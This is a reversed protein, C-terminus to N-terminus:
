NDLIKDIYKKLFGNFWLTIGLETPHFNFDFFVNKDSHYKKLWDEWSPESINLWLQTHSTKNKLIKNFYNKNFIKCEDNYLQENKSYYTYSLPQYNDEIYDYLNGDISQWIIYKNVNEQLLTKISLLSKVYNIIDNRTNVNFKVHSKWWVEYEPLSTLTKPGWNKFSDYDWFPSRFTDKIINNYHFWRSPSTLGILIINDKSYNESNIYIMLQFLIEDLSAGNVSYNLTEINYHNRIKGTINIDQRHILNDSLEDGWVWSDGFAIIKM